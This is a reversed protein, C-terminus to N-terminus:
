DHHGVLWAASDAGIATLGSSKAHRLMKKYQEIQSLGVMILEETTLADLGDKWICILGEVQHDDIEVSAILESESRLEWDARGYPVMNAAKFTLRGLGLKSEYSEAKVNLEYGDRQKFEVSNRTLHFDLMCVERNGEAPATVYIKSGWTGIIENRKGEYRPKTDGEVGLIRRNSRLATYHMKLVPEAKSRLPDPGPQRKVFMNELWGPSMKPTPLHPQIKSNLLYCHKSNTTKLPHSLQLKKFSTSQSLSRSLPFLILM